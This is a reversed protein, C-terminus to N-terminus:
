DSVNLGASNFPFFIKKKFSANECSEEKPASFCDGGECLRNKEAVGLKIGGTLAWSGLGGM